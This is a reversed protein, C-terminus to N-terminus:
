YYLGNIHNNQIAPEFLARSRLEAKAANGRRSHPKQPITVIHANKRAPLMSLRVKNGLNGYGIVEILM